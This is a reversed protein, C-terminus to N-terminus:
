LQTESGYDLTFGKKLDGSIGSGVIRFNNVIEVLEHLSQKADKSLEKEATPQENNM